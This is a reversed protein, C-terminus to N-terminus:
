YVYPKLNQWPKGPGFLKRSKRSVPRKGGQGVYLLAWRFASVAMLRTGNAGLTGEAM